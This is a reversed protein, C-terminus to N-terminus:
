VAAQFLPEFDNIRNVITRCHKIDKEIAVVKRKLRKAAEISTGSGAFPDLITEGENSYFYALDTILGIPKTTPHDFQASPVTRYNFVAYGFRKDKSQEPIEGFVLIPEMSYWINTHSAGAYQSGAPKNWILLRHFEKERDKLIIPLMKDACFWIVTKGVRLCENLWEDIKSEFNERNDWEEEKRVGYPPDTLVLDVSKSPLLPLVSEAKDNFLIVDNSKFFPPPIVLHEIQRFSSRDNTREQLINKSETNM